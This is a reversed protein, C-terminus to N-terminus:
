ILKTYKNDYCCFDKTTHVAQRQILYTETSDEFLTNYYNNTLPLKLKLIKTVVNVKWM